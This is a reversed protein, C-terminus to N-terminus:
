STLSIKVKFHRLVHLSHHAPVLPKTPLRKGIPRPISFYPAYVFLIGATKRVMQAVHNDDYSGLDLNELLLIMDIHSFITTDGHSTQRALVNIVKGFGDVVNNAIDASLSKGKAKKTKRRLNRYGYVPIVILSVVRSYFIHYV